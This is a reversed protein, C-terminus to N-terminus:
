AIKFDLPLGSPSHRIFVKSKDSPRNELSMAPAKSVVFSRYDREFPILVSRTLKRLGSIIKNGDYYWFDAFNILWDPDAGATEILVLTLGLELEKDVPWNLSASGAMSGGKDSNMVFTDFDVGAKLNDNISKLAPDSLAAALKRIPREYTNYDAQQIDLIANRLDDLASAVTM